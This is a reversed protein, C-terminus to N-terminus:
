RTRRFETPRECETYPAIESAPAWRWVKKLVVAEKLGWPDEMTATLLLRNGDRRYREVIRLQDSHSSLFRTWNSTIATTEIVLTDGEYRGVSHGMLTPEATTPREAADMVITRRADWEGYRMELRNGRRTIQLQHQAFIQRAVGWPECRLFGPDTAPDFPFDKLAAETLRPRIYQERQYNQAEIVLAAYPRADNAPDDLFAGLRELGADTCYAGCFRDEPTNPPDSWMGEFSASQGAAAGSLAFFSITLPVALTFRRAAAM